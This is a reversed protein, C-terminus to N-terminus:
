IWHDFNANLLFFVGVSARMHFCLEILCAVIFPGTCKVARNVISPFYLSFLPPLNKFIKLSHCLGGATILCKPSPFFSTFLLFFSHLQGNVTCPCPIARPHSTSLESMEGTSFCLSNHLSLCLAICSSSLYRVSCQIGFVSELFEM